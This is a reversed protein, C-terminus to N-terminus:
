LKSFNLKKRDSIKSLNISVTQTTRPCTGLLCNLYYVMYWADVLGENRIDYVVVLSGTSGATVSMAWLVLLVTCPAM